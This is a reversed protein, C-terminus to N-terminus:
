EAIQVEILEELAKRTDAFQGTASIKLYDKVYGKDKKSVLKFEEVVFSHKRDPGTQDVTDLFAAITEAPSDPVESNLDAKWITTYHNLAAILDADGPNDKLQNEIEQIKYFESPLVRFKYIALQMASKAAMLARSQEFQQVHSGKHFSTNMVLVTVLGLIGTCFVLVVAIAVGQKNKNLKNISM